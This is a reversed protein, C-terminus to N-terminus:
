LKIWEKPAIHREPMAVWWIKPTIVIKKEFNNLWAGWWSFSSNAIINHHCNKMLELDEIANKTKNVYIKDKLFSFNEECWKIDDSFIYFIPSQVNNCIYEISNKYYEIDCVGHFSNTHNNAVYDGRRVHLSISNKGKIDKMYNKANKSLRIKPTFDHILEDRINAFYTENQWVGDLYINEQSHPLKNEINLDLKERIVTDPHKLPFKLKKLIKYYLGERGRLLTNEEDTAINEEIYFINLEYNRLTQKPYFSVDLKFIDKKNKSLSKAVAYQFMQNGLGGSIRVIVVREGSNLYL